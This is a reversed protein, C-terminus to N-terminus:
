GTKLSDLPDDPLTDAIAAIEEAERWAAELAALEGELARREAEEHIAIELALTDERALPQPRKWRYGSIREGRFSGVLRRWAGRPDTQVPANNTAWGPYIGGNGKGLERMFAEPGGQAELRQLAGELRGRGARWGNASTLARELFRNALRGELRLPPPPVWRVVRGEEVRVPPLPVPVEVALGEGAPSEVVRAHYALQQRLVLAEGTPSEEASIRLIPRLTHRMLLYNGVLQSGVGAVVAPVAGLAVLPMGGVMVAMGGVITMSAGMM